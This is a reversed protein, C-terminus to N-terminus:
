ESASSPQCCLNILTELVRAARAPDTILYRHPGGSRQAFRTMGDNEVFVRGEPSLGFYGAQPRVAYLVSTLDWTPRDYPMKAHLRYAEALPHHAVYGYDHEISRAPYTISEGVEHGSLVVSTPWDHFVRQASKVDLVVNYERYPAEGPASNFKGAMASLLRVKQKVLTPGDLSSVADPKSDLLRALNTSFGIQVIVVSKDPQAALVKRLL